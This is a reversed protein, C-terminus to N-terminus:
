AHIAHHLPHAQAFLQKDVYAVMPAEDPLINTRFRILEATKQCLDIFLYSHPTQTADKYINLLYNKRSPYMQRGLVAIQSTDRPANFLCMYQSNLARTRAEPHRPLLNQLIYIVFQNKHHAAKTFLDTVGAHRAAADMLDDLVIISNPETFDFNEPLGHYMIFGKKTLLEQQATEQGYFWYVYSPKADFMQEAQTVFRIVFSTKGSWVPGCVLMCSGMHIRADM